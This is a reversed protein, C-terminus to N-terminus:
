IFFDPKGMEHYTLSTKKSRIFNLGEALKLTETQKEASCISLSHASFFTMGSISM